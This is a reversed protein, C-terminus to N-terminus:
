RFTVSIDDIWINGVSGDNGFSLSLRTTNTPITLTCTVLTWSAKVGNYGCANLLTNAVSDGYRIKSNSNTGNWNTDTQIWATTTVVQGPTVDFSSGRVGVGTTTPGLRMSRDGSRFVSTDVTGAILPTPASAVDKYWVVVNHGPAIGERQSGGNVTYASRERNATATLSFTPTAGSNDVTYQYTINGQDKVGAADLTPPYQDGNTVAYTQIKQSAQKLSVALASAESQQRIGSYAVITIAALIAIVVIVILLEVITFGRSTKAWQKM